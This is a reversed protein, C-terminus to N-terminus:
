APTLVEEHLREIKRAKGNKNVEIIVGEIAVMGEEKIKYKFPTGNVFQDLVAQAECGLISDKVGAMGADTIYATGGALVEGDATQVHTHTGVIASVRGDLYRGLAKKESTAEAHFDVFIVKAKGKEAHEALLKDAAEFPSTAKREMFIRGMLNVVLIKVGRIEFERASLSSDVDEVNAPMLFDLEKKKLNDFAQTNDWAHDGCTLIDVGSALMEELTKRTVGRGHALNDSNAIVIDIKMRKRKTALFKAVAQRSPKGVMDGIFLIRM